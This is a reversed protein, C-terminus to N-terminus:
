PLRQVNFPGNAKPELKPKKPDKPDKPYHEELVLSGDNVKAAFEDGVSERSASDGVAFTKDNAMFGMAVKYNQSM